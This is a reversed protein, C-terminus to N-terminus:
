LKESREVNKEYKCAGEHRGNSEIENNGMNVDLGRLKDEHSYSGQSYEM